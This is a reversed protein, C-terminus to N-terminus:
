RKNDIRKKRRKQEKWQLETWKQKNLMPKDLTSKLTFCYLFFLKNRERQFIFSSTLFVVSPIFITFCDMEYVHSLFKKKGSVGYAKGANELIANM